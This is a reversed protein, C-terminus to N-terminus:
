QKFITLKTMYIPNVFHKTEMPNHSLIETCIIKGTDTAIIVIIIATHSQRIQM